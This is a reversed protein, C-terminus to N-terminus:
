QLVPQTIDLIVAILGVALLAMAVATGVQQILRVPVEVKKRRVTGLAKEIVVILMRGGDLPPIPLLNFVALFTSYLMVLNLADFLGRGGIEAGVQVAGVPSLPRSAPDVSAGFVGRVLGTFGTALNRVGTLSARAVDSVAQVSGSASAGLGLTVNQTDAQVGVRRVGADLLVRVTYQYKLEGRQVAVQVFSGPETADVAKTLDSWTEVATGNVAVLQDGPRVGAAAAGLRPDVKAITTGAEPLGVASLTIFAVFLGILLNTAPGAAVVVLKQLAGSRQYGRPHELDDSSMGAIKVFGGLPIAKIGYEVGNRRISWIVPGFGVFFQHVQMKTARAALFHGGEHLLILSLLVALAILEAGGGVLVISGVLLALLALRRWSGPSVGTPEEVNDDANRVQTSSSM